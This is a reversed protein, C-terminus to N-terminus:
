IFGISDDHLNLRIIDLFPFHANYTDKASVERYQVGNIIDTPWVVRKKKDSKTGCLVLNSHLPSYTINKLATEYSQSSTVDFLILIGNANNVHCYPFEGGAFDWVNLVATDNNNLRFRLTSTEVYKTPTYRSRFTGRQVSQVLSTKGCKADGVLVVKMYRLSM